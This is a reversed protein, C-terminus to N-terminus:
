SSVFAIHAAYTLRAATAGRGASELGLRRRRAEAAPKRGKAGSRAFKFFLLLSFAEPVVEGRKSRRDANGGKRTRPSCSWRSRTHPLIGPRM